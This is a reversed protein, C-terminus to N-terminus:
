KVEELRSKPWILNIRQYTLVRTFRGGHNSKIHSAFEGYTICMHQKLTVKGSGLDEPSFTLLEVHHVPYNHDYQRTQRNIEVPQPLKSHKDYAQEPNLKFEPNSGTNVTNFVM